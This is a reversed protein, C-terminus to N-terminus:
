PVMTILFYGFFAISIENILRVDFLLFSEEDNVVKLCLNDEEIVFNLTV